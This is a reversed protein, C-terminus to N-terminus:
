EVLKQARCRPSKTKELKSTNNSFILNVLEQAQCVKLPNTDGLKTKIIQFYSILFLLYTIFAIYYFQVPM